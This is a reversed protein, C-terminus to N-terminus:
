LHKGAGNQVEVLGMGEGEVPVKRGLHHIEAWGVVM